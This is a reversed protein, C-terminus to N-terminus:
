DELISKYWEVIEEPTEIHGILMTANSRIGQQHAARHIDLWTQGSIKKPCIIDRVRPAFIEAGGGPMADLGAQKLAQLTQDISVNAQSALWHIEVATLGQIITDPLM